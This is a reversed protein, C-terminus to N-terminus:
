IIDSPQPMSQAMTGLGQPQPQGQIQAQQAVPSVQPMDETMLDSPLGLVDFLERVTKKIPMGAGALIGLIGQLSQAMVARNINEDTIVVKVDYESDLLEDIIPIYRNNGAKKLEAMSEEIYALREEETFLYGTKEYAEAIKEDVMNQVLADDIKKLIDPDGTIRVFDKKSKKLKKFIAPIVKSELFKEMDLFIDEIRLNYGKSTGQQEILANTAPRNVDQQDENTTGTVRTGWSYARDEDLYSNQDVRGTDILEVSSNADLKIGGTTFLRKFAQPTINGKLGFLGLSTVRSRNLRTNVVENLYAQINFLMEPIGRGDARNPVEKFKFDQYPYDEIDIEEILHVVPKTEINSILAKGYFYDDKDTESNTLCIKPFWGVRQYLEVYPIESSNADPNFPDTSNGVIQTGKVEESNDLKLKDFEPKTFVYREIFGSSAKINEISPDFITNLRDVICIELEDGDEELKLFATGDTVCRRLMGNITKGFRMKDLEEKLIQRTIESKIYALDSNNRAKIHIDKTDIDINKLVNEVVWETFPIFIKKRGTIPDTQNKFFGLYNRRAKKIVNRMMFQTDDTVFVAGEEWNQKESLTIKIAEKEGINPEYEM